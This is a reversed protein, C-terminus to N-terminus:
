ADTINVYNGESILQISHQGQSTPVTGSVNFETIAYVQEKGEPTRISLQIATNDVSTNTVGAPLKIDVVTRAPYGQAHILEAGSKLTQVANEAQQTRTIRTLDDAINQTNFLFPSLALLAFGIIVMFEIGSQGTFRM